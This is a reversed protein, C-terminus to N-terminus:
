REIEHYTLKLGALLIFVLGLIVFTKAILGTYFVSILVLFTAALALVDVAFERFDRSIYRSVFHRLIIMNLCVRTTWALAVGILGLWNILAYLLIAYIPLEILNAYATLKAHGKAQLTNFAARAVFNCILGASLISLFKWSNEAFYEGLWLSLVSKGLSVICIAVLIMFGGLIAESTRHLRRFGEFNSSQERSAKPFIVAFIAEPIISLRSIVDYPTTYFAVSAPGSIASVIFRDFYVMIPSVFNSVTMWGAMQMSKLPSIWGKFAFFNNSKFTNFIILLPIALIMYRFISIAMVATPLDASVFKAALAPGAFVWSGVAARLLAAATFKSFAELLGRAAGFFIVSPITIGLWLLAHNFDDGMEEPVNLWQHINTQSLVLILCCGIAAFIILLATISRVTSWIKDFEKAALCISVERTMVRGLGLDFISFYGILVWVLSLYGFAQLGLTEILYPICFIALGFPIFATLIYTIVAAYTKNMLRVTTLSSRSLDRDDQPKM